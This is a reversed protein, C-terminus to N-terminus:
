HAVHTDLTLSKTSSASPSQGQYSWPRMWKAVSLTGRSIRSNNTWSVPPLIPCPKQLCSALHSKIQRCNNSSTSWAVLAQQLKKCLVPCFFLISPLFDGDCTGLEAEFRRFSQKHVAKLAHSSIKLHWLLSFYMTLDSICYSMIKTTNKPESKIVGQWLIGLKTM